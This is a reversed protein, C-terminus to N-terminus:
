GVRRLLTRPRGAVLANPAVTTWSEAGATVSLGGHVVGAILLRGARNRVHGTVTGRLAADGSLVTVDGLVAGYVELHGGDVTVDGDVVGHLVLHDSVTVPGRLKGHEERM